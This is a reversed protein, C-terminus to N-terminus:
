SKKELQKVFANLKTYFRSLPFGVVNYFCGKVSEVFVAGFDDQIGYAGAKDMPSRSRIYSNIEERTLKRFKVKTGVVDSTWTRSKADVLAIGTFVTHEEGSLTKLMRKADTKSKPKGLVRNGIVVITDAGIVIGNRMRQAVDMAKELAIRKAAHQPREHNLITENVSSPRVTFELGIQRLLVRRRPSRSALVLRPFTKKRM